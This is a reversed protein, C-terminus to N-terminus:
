AAGLLKRIALAQRAAEALQHSDMGARRSSATTPKKQKKYTM